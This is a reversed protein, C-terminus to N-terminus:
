IRWLIFNELLCGNFTVLQCFSSPVSWFTGDVMIKKVFKLYRKCNQDFFLLFRESDNVGSDYRLFLCGRLYIKLFEPVDDFEPRFGCFHEKRIRTLKDNLSKLNPIETLNNEPLLKTESTIIDINTGNTTRIKKALNNCLKM